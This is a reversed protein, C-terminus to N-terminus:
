SRSVVCQARTSSSRDTEHSFFQARARLCSGTTSQDRVDVALHRSKPRWSSLRFPRGDRRTPCVPRPASNTASGYRVRCVSAFDHRVLTRVLSPSGTSEVRVRRTWRGGDVTGPLLTRKRTASKRLPKTFGKFASVVVVVRIRHRISQCATRWRDRVTPSGFKRKRWCVASSKMLTTREHPQFLKKIKEKEIVDTKSFM